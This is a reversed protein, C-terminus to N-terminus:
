FPNYFIETIFLISFLPADRSKFEITIPYTFIILNYTITLNLFILKQYKLTSLILYSITLTLINDILLSETYNFM